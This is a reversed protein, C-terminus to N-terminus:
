FYIVQPLLINRPEMSAKGCKLSPYFEDRLIKVDRLKKLSFTEGKEKNERKNQNETKTRKKRKVIKRRKRALKERESTGSQRRLYHVATFTPTVLLSM